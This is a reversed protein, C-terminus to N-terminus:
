DIVSATCNGSRYQVPLHIFGSIAPPVVAGLDVGNWSPHLNWQWTQDSSRRDFDQTCIHKNTSLSGTLQPNLHLSSPLCVALLGPARRWCARSAQVSWCCKHLYFISAQKNTLVILHCLSAPLVVCYTHPCFPTIESCVTGHLQVGCRDQKNCCAWMSMM